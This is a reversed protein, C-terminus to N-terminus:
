RTLLSLSLEKTGCVLPFAASCLDCISHYWFNQQVISNLILGAIVVIFALVRLSFRPHGCASELLSLKENDGTLAPTPQAPALSNNDDAFDSTAPIEITLHFRFVM